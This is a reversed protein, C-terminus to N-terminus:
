VRERCSARGIEENMRVGDRSELNSYTAISMSMKGDGSPLFREIFEKQTLRLANRLLRLNEKKNVPNMGTM